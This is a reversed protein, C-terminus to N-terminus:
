ESDDDEDDEPDSHESALNSLTEGGVEPNEDLADIMAKITALNNTASFLEDAQAETIGLSEAAYEWVAWRRGSGVPRVSELMKVKGTTDSRWEMECGDLKATWGALCFAAGCSEYGGIPADVQIGWLRQDWQRLVKEGAAEKALRAAEVAAITDYVARLKAIDPKPRHKPRDVEATTDETTTTM